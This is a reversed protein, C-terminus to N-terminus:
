LVNVIETCRASAYRDNKNKKKFIKKKKLRPSFDPRGSKVRRFIYFIPVIGIFVPCNALMSVQKGEGRCFFLSFIFLYFDDPCWWLFRIHLNQCCAGGYLIPFLNM